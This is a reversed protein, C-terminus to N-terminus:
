KALSIENQKGNQRCFMYNVGNDCLRFRSFQVYKIFDHPLFRIQTPNNPLMLVDYNMAFRIQAPKAPYLFLVQHLARVFLVLESIM